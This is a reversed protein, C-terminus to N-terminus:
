LKFYLACTFIIISIILHPLHLCTIFSQIRRFYCLFKYHIFIIGYRKIEMHPSISQPVFILVHMFYKKSLSFFHLSYISLFIMSYLVSIFYHRSMISIRRYILSAEWPIFYSSHAIENRSSIAHRFISRFLDFCLLLLILINAILTATYCLSIFINFYISREM